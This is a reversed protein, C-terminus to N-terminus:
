RPVPPGDALLAERAHEAVAARLELRAARDLMPIDQPRMRALADRLATTDPARRAARARAWAPLLALAEYFAVLTPDEPARLTARRDRRVASRRRV